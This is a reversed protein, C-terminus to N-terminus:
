RSLLNALDGASLTEPWNGRLIVSRAQVATRLRDHYLSFRRSNGPEMKRSYVEVENLKLTLTDKEFAMSVRNWDGPRFPLPRPGRRNLPEITANYPALGTWETQGSTMWQVRVGNPELLFALRGLAPHVDQKEPEYFFEYDISEGNQLPRFYTLRSPESVHISETQLSSRIVGEHITWAPSMQSPALQNATAVNALVHFLRVHDGREPSAIASPIAPTNVRLIDTTEDVAYFQQSWGRLSDGQSLSVTDPIKITPKGRLQFNRFAPIADGSCRLALWPSTTTNQIPQTWVPHGNIRLSIEKESGQLALRQYTPWKEKRIFPFPRKKVLTQDWERVNLEDTTGDLSYALGGFALNGATPEPGGNQAEVHFEFEGTLPYRFFLYDNGPGALHMLHDEHLLWIERVAGAASAAVTEESSPIWFKLQPDSLINPQTGAHQKLIAIARARRLFPKAVLFSSNSFAELLTEFVRQGVPELEKRHVCAAGLVWWHVEDLALAATAVKNEPAAPQAPTQKNKAARVTELQEDITKQIATANASDDTIQALLLVFQANRVNTKALGELDTTLRRLRGSEAAARVLLWATNFLGDVDAVAPIPFANPRPREGIARAFADPPSEVSALSSFTRVDRRGQAPMTWKHLVEYREDTSLADLRRNLAGAVAAQAVSSDWFDPTQLDAQEGLVELAKELQEGRLFELAVEYNWTAMRQEVVERPQEKGTAKGLTQYLTRLSELHKIGKEPEGQEFRLRAAAKVLSAAASEVGKDAGKSLLIATAQEIVPLAELATEEDRLLRAIRPVLPLVAEAASNERLARALEQVETEAGRAQSYLLVMAITLYM